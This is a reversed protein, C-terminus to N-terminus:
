AGPDGGEFAGRNESFWEDISRAKHGTLQEVMPSVMAVAGSEVLALYELFSDVVVKPLGMALGGKRVAAPPVDTHKVERGLVKSLRACMTSHDLAEPGTLLYTKKEHGAPSTLVKVAVEAIDRVNVLAVKGSRCPSYVTGEQAISGAHMYWSTTTGGPRLHTWALGSKEIAEESQRHWRGVACLPELGVLSASLKVVHKVGATRAAEVLRGEWLPIQPGAPSLVFLRTIGELAPALTRPKEYDAVVPAGPAVEGRKGATHVMARFPQGTAALQRVVESGITGTAGTILIM